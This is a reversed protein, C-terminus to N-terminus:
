EGLATWSLLPPRYSCAPMDDPFCDPQAAFHRDRGGLPGLDILEHNDSGDTRVLRITDGIFYAIWDGDPSLTPSVGTAVQRLSAEGGYMVPAEKFFAGVLWRGKGDADIVGPWGAGPADVRSFPEGDPGRFLQTQDVAEVSLDLLAIQDKSGAFAVSGQELWWPMIFGATWTFLRARDSGDIDIREVHGLGSGGIRATGFVLQRGDPSWSVNTVGVSWNSAGPSPEYQTVDLREANDGDADVLWIDFDRAFAIRNGDRSFAPASAWLGDKLEGEVVRTLDTGDAGIAYISGGAAFAIRGEPDTREHRLLAFALVATICGAFVAAAVLLLRRAPPSSLSLM